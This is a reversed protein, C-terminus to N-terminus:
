KYRIKKYLKNLFTIQRLPRKIYYGFYSKVIFYSSCGTNYRYYLRNTEQFRIKIFKPNFTLAEEYYRYNALCEKVSIFKLNLSMARQWFDWDAIITFTSDYLGIISLSKRRFFTVQDPLAINKKILREKNFEFDGYTRMYNGDKDIVNIIGYIIDISENNTFMNNMIELANKEYYDDTNLFCIIDGSALLLGKNRAHYIGKDSEIIIKVNKNNKFKQIIEQSGDTSMGDLIILEFDQHTQDLVSLISQEIYDIQNYSAMIISFKM